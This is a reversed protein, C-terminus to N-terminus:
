LNRKAIIGMVMIVKKAVRTEVSHQRLFTRSVYIDNHTVNRLDAYSVLILNWSFGDLYRIKSPSYESQFYAKKLSCKHLSM